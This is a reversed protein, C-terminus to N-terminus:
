HLMPRPEGIIPLVFKGNTYSYHASYFYNKLFDMDPKETIIKFKIVVSHGTKHFFYYPDNRNIVFVFYGKYKFFNFNRKFRLIDLDVLSTDTRICNIFLYYYGSENQFSHILFCSKGPDGPNIADELLSDIRINEKVVKINVRKTAQAHISKVFVILLITLFFKAM